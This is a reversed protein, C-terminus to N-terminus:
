PEVVTEVNYGAKNGFWSATYADDTYAIGDRFKVGGIAKNVPNCCSIKYKKRDPVELLDVVPADEKKRAAM